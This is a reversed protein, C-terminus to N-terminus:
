TGSTASRSRRIQLVRRMLSPEGLTLAERLRMARQRRTDIGLLSDEGGDQEGWLVRQGCGDLLPDTILVEVVGGMPRDIRDQLIEPLLITRNIQDGDRLGKRIPVQKLLDSSRSIQRIELGEEWGCGIGLVVDVDHPFLMEQTAHNGGASSGRRPAVLLLTFHLHQDVIDLLFDEAHGLITHSSFEGVDLLVDVVGDICDLFEVLVLTFHGANGRPELDEVVHGAPHVRAFHDDDCRTGGHSLCGKRHVNRFM